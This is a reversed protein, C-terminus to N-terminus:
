CFGHGQAPRGAETKERTFIFHNPSGMSLRAWSPAPVSEVLQLSTLAPTFIFKWLTFPPLSMDIEMPSRLHLMAVYCGIGVPVALREEKNSKGQQETPKHDQPM